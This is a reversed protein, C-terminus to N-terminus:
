IPAAGAVWRQERGGDVRDFGLRAGTGGSHPTVAHDLAIQPRVRGEADIFFQLNRGNRSHVSACSWIGVGQETDGRSDLCFDRDAWSEVTGRAPDMRWRQTDTATCRAMVVDNGSFFDGDAVDLCLGTAANVFQTFATGPPSPAKSPKKPPPEPAPPKPANSSPTPSPSKSPSPSPSASPSPSTTMTATVTVPPPAPPQPQSGPGNAADSDSGGSLLVVLLPTLAVGFAVAVLVFRKSPRWALLDGDPAAGGGTGRGTAGRGGVGARRGFVDSAVSAFASMATVTAAAGTMGGTRAHPVPPVPPLVATPEGDPGDPNEQAPSPEPGGAAHRRRASSMDGPSVPAVPPVPPVPPVVDQRSTVYAAGDWPLLGDALVPRPTERLALLTAHARGCCPCADLHQFLDGSHRPDRPRVSEEILRRFGQCRADGYRALHAKLFARALVEVAAGKAWPIEDERMGLFLATGADPEADVLGYWLVGQTRAPLSHFAALMPSEAPRPRAFAPLDGAEAEEAALLDAFGPRLRVRRDDGLWSAAVRRVLLMVHHRWAGVPDAGRKVDKAGLAFAQATLLKAAAEDTGCLRAYALASGHHRRRLERLAPYATATDARLLDTLRTDPM